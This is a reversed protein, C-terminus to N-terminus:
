LVYRFKMNEKDSKNVFNELRVEETGGESETDCQKARRQNELVYYM